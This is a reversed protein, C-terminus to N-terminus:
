PRRRTRVRLVAIATLVYLWLGGWTGALAIGAVKLTPLLSFLQHHLAM